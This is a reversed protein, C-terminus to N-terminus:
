PGALLTESRLARLLPRLAKCGAQWDDRPEAVRRHFCPTERRPGDSLGAATRADWQHWCLRGSDRDYIGAAAVFFTQSAPAPGGSVAASAPDPVDAASAGSHWHLLVAAPPAAADAASPVIAAFVREAAAAIAPFAAAAGASTTPRARPWWCMSFPPIFTFDRGHGTFVRHYRSGCLPQASPFGENRM